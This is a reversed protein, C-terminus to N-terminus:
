CQALYCLAHCLQYAIGTFHPLKIFMKSLASYTNVINTSLMLLGYSTTGYLYTIWVFASSRKQSSSVLHPYLINSSEISLHLSLIFSSSSFWQSSMFDSPPSKTFHSKINVHTWFRFTLRIQFNHELAQISNSPTINIRDSLFNTQKWNFFTWCESQEM